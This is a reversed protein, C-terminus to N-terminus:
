KIWENMNIDTPTFIYTICLASMAVRHAKPKEKPKPKEPIAPEISEKWLWAQCRMQLKAPLSSQFVRLTVWKAALFCKLKGNLLWEFYVPESCKYLTLSIIGYREKKHKPKWRGASTSMKAKAEKKPKAKAKEAPKAPIPKEECLVVCPDVLHTESQVKQKFGLFEELLTEWLPKTSKYVIAPNEPEVM